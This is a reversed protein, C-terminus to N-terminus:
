SSSGVTIKRLPSSGDAKSQSGPRQSRSFRYSLQRSRRAKTERSKPCAISSIQRFEGAEDEWLPLPRPPLMATGIGRNRFEQEVSFAIDSTLDDDPAHLEGAARRTDQEFFGLVLSKSAFCETAYFSFNM